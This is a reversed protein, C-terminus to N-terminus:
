AFDCADICLVGAARSLSRVCSAAAEGIRAEPKAEFRLLDTERRGSAYGAWIHLCHAAPRATAAGRVLAGGVGGLRGGVM